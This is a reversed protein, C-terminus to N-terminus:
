AGAYADLSQTALWDKDMKPSGDEEKFTYVKVIKAPAFGKTKSPSEEIFKLGVKQGILVNKMQRDIVNTGGVSYFGGAVVEVPEDVVKKSEDLVHYSGEDAKLEYVMTKQGEKGPLSSTVSRKEILTGLIRDKMPVNFKVWSSQVENEASDWGEEKKAM